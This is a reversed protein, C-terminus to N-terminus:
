RVGAQHVSKGPPADGQIFAFADFDWILKGQADKIQGSPAAVFGKRADSKELWDSSGTQAPMKSPNSTSELKQCAMLACLALLLAFIRGSRILEDLSARMTLSRLTTNYVVGVMQGLPIVRNMSRDLPMILVDFQLASEIKFVAM